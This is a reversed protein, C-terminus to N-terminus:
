LNATKDCNESATARRDTMMADTVRNTRSDPAAEGLVRNCCFRGATRYGPTRVRNTHPGTRQAKVNSRNEVGDEVQAVGAM